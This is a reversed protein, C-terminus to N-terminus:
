EGEIVIKTNCLKEYEKLTVCYMGDKDKPLDKETGWEEQKVWMPCVHNKLPIGNITPWWQCKTHCQGNGDRGRFGAFCKVGTVDGVVM